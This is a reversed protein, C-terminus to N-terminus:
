IDIFRMYTSVLFKIQSSGLIYSLLILVCCRLSINYKLSELCAKRGEKKEDILLQSAGVIGLKRGYVKPCKRKIEDGFEELFVRNTLTSRHLHKLRDRSRSLRQGGHERHIIYLVRPVYYAKTKRLLKLWLYGENGWLREDFRDNEGLLDRRVLVWVDGHIRDCLIDEYQIYGEESIGFVSRQKREFDMGDFCVINIGRPSLEKLKEIAIELAEPLLEDDDDLFATYDGRALDFGKNRCALVGRNQEHRYYLIRSDKFSRCVEETNDRSGDDVIILEFNQYSQNLVSNIARPLLSARNYTAMTISFVPINDMKRRWGVM